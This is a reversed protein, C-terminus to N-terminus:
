SPLCVLYGETPHTFVSVGIGFAHAVAERTLVVSPSGSVLAGGSLLAIVDAFRAALTLDHVAAAVAVGTATLAKLTRLVELQYRLDLHSTPEDILLTSGGIALAAAIWARQVEGDSLTSVPDRARGTLGVREIARRSADADDAGPAFRWWPRRLALGYDALELPTVDPPPSSTSAIFAVGDPRFVSGADPKKAGAFVRLLTSKGSGNPGVIATFTGPELSLSVRDFLTRGDFAIRLDRVSATANV